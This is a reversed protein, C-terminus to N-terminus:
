LISFIILHFSTYLMTTWRTAQWTTMIHGANSNSNNFVQMSTFIEICNCFQITNIETLCPSINLNNVPVVLARANLRVRMLLYQRLSGAGLNRPRAGFTLQRPGVAM